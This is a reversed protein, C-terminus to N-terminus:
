GWTGREVGMPLDEATLTPLAMLFVFFVAALALVSWLVITKEWKLHMFVAAVLSAKVAAIVLAILVHTPVSAELLSALVTLVTFIALAVFVAVCLRMHRSTDSHADAM